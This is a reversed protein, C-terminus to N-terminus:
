HWLWGQLLVTTTYNLGYSPQILSIMGKVFFMIILCSIFSAIIGYGVINTVVAHLSGMQLFVIIHSLLNFYQLDGSSCGNLLM